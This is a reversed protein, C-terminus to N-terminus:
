VKLPPLHAARSTPETAMTPQPQEGHLNEMREVRLRQIRKAALGTQLRVLRFGHTTKMPLLLGNTVVANVEKLMATHATDMQVYRLELVSLKVMLRM